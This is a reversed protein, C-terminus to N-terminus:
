KITFQDNNEIPVHNLWLTRHQTVYSRSFHWCSTIKLFTPTSMLVKKWPFTSQFLKKKMAMWLCTMQSWFHGDIFWFYRMVGMTKPLLVYFSYTKPLLTFVAIRYPRFHLKRFLFNRDNGKKLCCYIYVM